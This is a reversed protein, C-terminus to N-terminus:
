FTGVIEGRAQMVKLRSTYPVARMYPPPPHFAQSGALRQPSWRSWQKQFVLFVSPRAPLRVSERKDCSSPSGSGSGSGSVRVIEMDRHQQASRPYSDGM